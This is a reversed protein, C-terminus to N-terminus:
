CIRLMQLSAEEAKLKRIFLKGILFSKAANWSNKEPWTSFKFSKFSQISQFKDKEQHINKAVTGLLFGKSKNSSNTQTATEIEM